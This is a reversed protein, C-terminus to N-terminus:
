RVHKKNKLNNFIEKELISLDDYCYKQIVMEEETNYYPEKKNGLPKGYRMFTKREYLYNEIILYRWREIKKFSVLIVDVDVKSILRENIVDIESLSLIDNIKPYEQYPEM